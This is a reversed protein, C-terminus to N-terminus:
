GTAFGVGQLWWTAPFIITGGAAIALGYPLQIRNSTIARYWFPEDDKGIMMVHEVAVWLLTGGALIGGAVLTLLAFEPLPVWGIWLACAAAMKVDGGGILSSSFLVMGVLFTIIAAVVHWAFIEVPMGSVLVFPIISAAILGNLWNPIKLSAYDAIGASMILVPFVSLLLTDYM